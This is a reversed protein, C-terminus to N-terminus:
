LWVGTVQGRLSPGVDEYGMQNCHGWLLWIDTTDASSWAKLEEPTLSPVECDLM